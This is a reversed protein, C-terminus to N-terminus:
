AIAPVGIEKLSDGHKVYLYGHLPESERPKHM